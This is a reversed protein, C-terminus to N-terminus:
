LPFRLVASPTLAAGVRQDHAETPVEPLVEDDYVVVATLVGPPVRSLARDYSGGGRGLRNGHLDVALGPVLVVDAHTIADPALLPGLPHRTGAAGPVVTDNGAYLAWDLDHDPRLVPLLVTSGAASLDALVDTVDPEDSLPLYAAVTRAQQLPPWGRAVETLRVCDERRTGATREGRRRLAIRRAAAKRDAPDWPAGGSDPM